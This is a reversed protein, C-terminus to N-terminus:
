GTHSEHGDTSSTTQSSEKTSGSTQKTCAWRNQTDEASANPSTLMTSDRDTESSNTDLLLDSPLALPSGASHESITPMSTTNVTSDLTTALHSRPESPPSLSPQYAELHTSYTISSSPSWTSITLTGNSLTSERSRALCKSTLSRCITKTELKITDM